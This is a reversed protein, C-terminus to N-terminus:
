VKASTGRSSSSRVPACSALPWHVSTPDVAKSLHRSRSPGVPGSLEGLLVMDQKTTTITVENDATEAIDTVNAFVASYFGGLEPNRQRELSFHRRWDDANHRGLVDSRRSTHDCAVDPHCVRGKTALGPEVKLDPTQRLLSDCAVAMVANDPYDFVYLPDIIAPERYFAWVATEARARLPRTLITAAATSTDGSGGSTADTSDASKGCAAGLLAFALGTAAVVRMTSNRTM